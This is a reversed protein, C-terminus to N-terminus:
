ASLKCKSEIENLIIDSDNEMQLYNENKLSLQKWKKSILVIPCM